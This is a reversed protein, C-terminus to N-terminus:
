VNHRPQLLKKNRRYNQLPRVPSGELFLLFSYFLFLIAPIFIFPQEEDFKVFFLKNKLKRCFFSHFLIIIRQSHHNKKSINSFTNNRATGQDGNMNMYNEHRFMQLSHYIPFLLCAFIFM